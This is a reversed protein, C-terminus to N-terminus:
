KSIIIEKAALVDIDERDKFKCVQGLNQARGTSTLDRDKKGLDYPFTSSHLLLFVWFFPSVRFVQLTILFSSFHIHYPTLM